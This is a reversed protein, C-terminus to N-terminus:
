FDTGVDLPYTGLSIEAHPARLRAPLVAAGSTTVLVLGQAEIRGVSVRAVRSGPRFSHLVEAETLPPDVLEPIFVSLGEEGPRLRFAPLRPTYVRFVVTEM